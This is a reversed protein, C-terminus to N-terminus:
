ITHFNDLAIKYQHDNQIEGRKYLEDLLNSAETLTDTRGSLKLGLLVELRTHIDNINSPIISKKIRECESNNIGEETEENKVPPLALPTRFIKAIAKPQKYLADKTRASIM